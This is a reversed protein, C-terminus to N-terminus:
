EQHHAINMNTKETKKMIKAIKNQKADKMILSQKQEKEKIELNQQLQSNM